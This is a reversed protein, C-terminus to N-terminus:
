SIHGFLTKLKEEINDKAPIRITIIGHNEAVKDKFADIEKRNKHWFEGDIEIFMKHEEIYFDVYRNIENTKYHYHHIFKINNKILWDYAIKEPYSMKNRNGSLLRAPHKEPHLKYYIKRNESMVKKQADTWKKRPIGKTKSPKGTLKESIAKIRIDNEKTLGKSWQGKGFKLNHVLHRHNYLLAKTDFIKNCKSCKWTGYKARKKGFGVRNLLQEKTAYIKRKKANFACKCSKSCFRGSGYSGDHENGCNECIYTKM